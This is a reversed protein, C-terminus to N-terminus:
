PGFETLIADIEEDTARWPHRLEALKVLGLM